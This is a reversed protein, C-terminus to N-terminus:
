GRIRNEQAQAWTVFLWPIKDKEMQLKSWVVAVELDGVTTEESSGYRIGKQSGRKEIDCPWIKFCKNRFTSLTNEDAKTM